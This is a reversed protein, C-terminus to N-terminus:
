KGAVVFLFVGALTPKEPQPKGEDETNISARRWLLTTVPLVVFYLLVSIIFPSLAVLMLAEWWVLDGNLWFSFSCASIAAVSAFRFQWGGNPNKIAGFLMLGLTCYIFLFIFLNM